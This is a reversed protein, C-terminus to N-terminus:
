RSEYQVMSELNKKKIDDRKELYFVGYAIRVIGALPVAVAAGLFGFYATMITIAVVYWTPHLNMRDSRIYPEM